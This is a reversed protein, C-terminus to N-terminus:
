QSRPGHPWGEWPNQGRRRHETDPMSWGRWQPRAPCQSPVPIASPHCQNPHNYPIYTPIITTYITNSHSPHNPDNSRSSGRNAMCCEPLRRTAREGFPALSQAMRLTQKSFHSKWAWMGKMRLSAMTKFISTHTHTEEFNLNVALKHFIIFWYLGYFKTRHEKTESGAKSRTLNCGTRAATAKDVRHRQLQLSVLENFIWPFDSIM